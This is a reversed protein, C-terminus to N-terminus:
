LLFDSASLAQLTAVRIAFDAIGDGNVDGQITLGTRDITYRIEGARHSFESTGLFRFMQNGAMDTRADIQFLDIKDAGRLFDTILDATTANRGTDTAKEFVFHDMGAGGSLRDKHIGGTLTDNGAGGFLIDAGSSGFLRDHGTGGHITDTGAGGDIM